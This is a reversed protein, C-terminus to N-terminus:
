SIHGMTAKAVYLTSKVIPKKIKFKLMEVFSPSKAYITGDQQRYHGPKM